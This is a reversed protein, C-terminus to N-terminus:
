RKGHGAVPIDHHLQIIETRLEVNKLIYVKEEKLVLNGEIQWEEEWSVKVEAKKMEEVVRVVEENKSRAKKIKEVIDVEPGEIVVEALSYIWQEKILTQNDNDNETGVKWDLRRSLRNTKGM